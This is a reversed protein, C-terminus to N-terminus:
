KLLHNLRDDTLGRDSLNLICISFEIESALATIFSSKGCGPPGYLLYGRRYPIGRDTYWKPNNIFDKCDELLKKSIGQDLVVSNIPRKKRPHGFPRWESGMATYMITKGETNKLAM